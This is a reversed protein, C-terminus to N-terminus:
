RKQAAAPSMIVNLMSASGDRSRVGILGATKRYSVAPVCNNPKLSVSAVDDFVDPAPLRVAVVGLDGPSAARKCGWSM